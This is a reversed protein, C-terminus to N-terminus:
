RADLSDLRSSGRAIPCARGARTTPEEDYGYDVLVAARCGARRGAEIDRWRDGVVVSRSLDYLPPRTLLGPKPKRCDCGDATTTPARRPVRRAAPASRPARADGAAGRETQTGRAVDPQNTVVVLAFGAAKLRALAEPVGPLMELEEVRNPAIRGDTGCSRGTSSATAISFSPAAQMTVADVGVEDAGGQPASAVGAPALRGGPVGRQAAHDTEPNVTPVIVCADAVQATYGGDRGVVGVIAAGVSKAYQLARVLNPSINKELSGGGVSFVFVADDRRLRSGTLWAAFVTDWGEDNTRATLESVNDTPAYAEFGALKRFDNVAHSCNGASGGVGLFFLRGGRERM